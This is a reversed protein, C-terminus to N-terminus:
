KKRRNRMYDRQRGKLKRWREADEFDEATAGCEACTGITRSADIKKESDVAEVAATIAPLDEVDIGPLDKPDCTDYHRVGCLRCKPADM